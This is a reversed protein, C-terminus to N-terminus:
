SKSCLCELRDLDPLARYEPKLTGGQPPGPTGPKSQDFGFSSWRMNLISLRQALKAGRKVSLLAVRGTFLRALAIAQLEGSWRCSIEMKEEAVECLL